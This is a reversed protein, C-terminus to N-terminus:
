KDVLIKEKHKLIKDKEKVKLLANELLELCKELKQECKFILEALLIWGRHGLEDLEIAKKAHFYASQVQASDQLYTLDGFSKNKEKSQTLLEYKIKCHYLANGILAHCYAFAVNMDNNNNWLKNNTLRNLIMESSEVFPTLQQQVSTLSMDNEGKM